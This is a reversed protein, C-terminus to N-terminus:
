RRDVLTGSKRILSINLAGWGLDRRRSGEGSAKTLAPPSSPPAVSEDFKTIRDGRSRVPRTTTLGDISRYGYWMRYSNISNATNVRAARTWRKTDSCAAQTPIPSRPTRKIPGLPAPFDVTARWQKNSPNLNRDSSLTNTDGRVMRAVPMELKKCVRASESRQSPRDGSAAAMRPDGSIRRRLPALFYSISKRRSGKMSAFRGSSITLM